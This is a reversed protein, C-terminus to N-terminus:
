TVALHIERNSVSERERGKERERRRGGGGRERERERGGVGREGEERQREGERGRRERQRGGNGGEREGRERGGERERVGEARGKGGGERECVRKRVHPRCWLKVERGLRLQEAPLSILSGLIAGGM